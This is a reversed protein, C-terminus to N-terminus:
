YIDSNDIYEKVVIKSSRSVVMCNDPVDSSVVVGAGIRCNDGVYANGVIIVGVDTLVDNLTGSSKSDGKRIYSVAM